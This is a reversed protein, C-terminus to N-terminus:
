QCAVGVALWRDGVRCRRVVLGSRGSGTIAFVTPRCPVGAQSLTRVPVHGAKCTETGQFPTKAAQIHRQANTRRRYMPSNPPQVKDHVWARVPVPLRRHDGNSIHTRPVMVASAISGALAGTQPPMSRVSLVPMSVSWVQRNTPANTQAVLNGQGIDPM